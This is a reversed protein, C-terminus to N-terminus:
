ELVSSEGKGKGTIRDLLSRGDSDGDGDDKHEDAPDLMGSAPDDNSTPEDDNSTPEDSTPKDDDIYEARPPESVNVCMNASTDSLDIIDGKKAHVVAARANGPDGISGDRLIRVRKM